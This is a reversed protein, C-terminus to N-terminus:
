LDHFDEEETKAGTSVKDGAANGGGAVVPLANTGDRKVNGKSDAVTVPSPVFIPLPPLVESTASTSLDNNGREIEEHEDISSISLPKKQLTGVDLLSSSLAAMSSLSNWDDEIKQGGGPVKDEDKGGQKTPVEGLTGTTDQDLPESQSSLVTSPRLVSPQFVVGPSNGEREDEDDEDYSGLAAFPNHKKFGRAVVEDDDMDQKGGPGNRRRRGKKEKVQGGEEEEEGQGKDLGACISRVFEGVSSIAAGASVAAAVTPTVGINVFVPSAILGNRTKGQARRKWAEQRHFAQSRAHGQTRELLNHYADDYEPNAPRQKKGVRASSSELPPDKGAGSSTPPAPRAGRLRKRSASNSEAPQDTALM